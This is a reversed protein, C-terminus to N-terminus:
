IKWLMQNFSLQLSLSFHFSNFSWHIKGFRKFLTFFKEFEFVNCSDATDVDTSLELSIKYSGRTSVRHFQGTRNDKIILDNFSYEYLKYHRGYRIQWRSCATAKIKIKRINREYLLFFLVLWILCCHSRQYEAKYIYINTKYNLIKM